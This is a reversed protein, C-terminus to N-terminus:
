SSHGVHIEDYLPDDALSLQAHTGVIRVIVHRSACESVEFRPHGSTAAHSDMWIERQAKFRKQLSRQNGPITEDFAAGCGTCQASLTM